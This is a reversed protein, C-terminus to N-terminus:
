PKWLSHQAILKAGENGVEMGALYVFKLRKGLIGEFAGGIRFFCQQPM